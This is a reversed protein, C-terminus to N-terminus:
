LIDKRKSFLLIVMLPMFSTKCNLIFCSMKGIYQLQKRILQPDALHALIIFDPLLLENCEQLGQLIFYNGQEPMCFWGCLTFASDYVSTLFQEFAREYKAEESTQKLVCSTRRCCKIKQFLKLLFLHFFLDSQMLSSMCIQGLNGTGNAQTQPKAAQQTAPVEEARCLFCFCYSISCTLFKLLFGLKSRIAPNLINVACQM